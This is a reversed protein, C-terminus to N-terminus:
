QSARCAAARASPYVVFAASAPPLELQSGRLAAPELPVAVGALRWLQGNLTLRHSGLSAAGISYLKARTADFPPLQVTASREPHVNLVLLTVADDRGATCHAYSRVFANGESVRVTLVRTGMLRKWAVSHFYDPRPDLTAADLLGYDSGALTQRVMVRQGRAALLGLQDLWWLGGSHRDSVGPEGGCQANGTEGLWVEAHPAGMAVFGEIERAWRQVEDLAVPDLLTTASARRTAVPCRRSQQPYYHWTVIDAADAGAAFFRNLFGGIPESPQGMRPWYFVAPGAIRADPHYTRVVRRFMALDESYQQGTAQSRPGHIFWHADVENGLEWVAVESGRERAHRLLIKANDPTWAGSADRPGPGANVTFFLSFGAARAFDALMDWRRMSLVLEYPAPATDVARRAYYTHDAETGGIRLYAPALARALTLLRSRSLDFPETRGTGRGLEVRTADESWWRGGLLQSTDLAV